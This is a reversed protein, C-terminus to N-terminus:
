PGGATIMTGCGENTFIEVLFSDPYEFSIVHVSAVGGELATRIAKSKPLMGTAIVGSSELAELESVDLESYLSSADNINKLIGRPKTALILKQACVSTSIAAAVDDANVNLIQGAEDACLCSVIPVIGSDVFLHLLKPDVRVIDGVQGYDVTEGSKSKVPPRKTATILGADIGSVGVARLSHARCLSLIKSQVSGNLTMALADISTPSTVRRGDVFHSAIGFEDMLRTAQAGGGHVLIVRMGLQHLMAIQEIVASATKDSELAEGGLKIVFLEGAFRRLYPLAARLGQVATLEM